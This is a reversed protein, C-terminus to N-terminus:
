RLSAFIDRLCCFINRSCLPRRFYLCKRSLINASDAKRRLSGSSLIIGKVNKGASIVRGVVQHGPIVPFVPPPTRGEIEDLETHCVGCASVKLLVENDGPVPEPVNVLALPEQNKELDTISNLIMAKM